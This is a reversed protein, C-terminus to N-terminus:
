QVDQTVCEWVGELNEKWISINGDGCAVSLLGGVGSWSIRWVTDGFPAEQLPKKQWTGQAGQYWILVTRDQSCSAIINAGQGISPAWAVDRVWDTHGALSAEEKWSSNDERDPTLRFFLVYRWVKVLNDCGGTVLKKGVHAPAWSVGNVGIGHAQFLSSHWVGDEGCSHVSVKGDSSACALMLGHEHPAWAVTNVSAAHTKEFEKARQWQSTINGDPGQQYFEKWVIIRGDYGGSALLNGFRPHAWAVQWVPGEHGRLTEILQYGGEGPAFLKITRDSSCTALTKGYYDL